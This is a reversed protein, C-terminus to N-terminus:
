GLFQSVPTTIAVLADNVNAVSNNTADILIQQPVPIGSEVAAETVYTIEVGVYNFVPNFGAVGFAIDEQTDTADNLVTITAATTDVAGTASTGFLVLTTAGTVLAFHIGNVDGAAAADPPSATSVAGTIKVSYMKGVELGHAGGATFVRPSANAVSSGAATLTYDPSAVSLNPSVGVLAIPAEDAATFVVGGSSSTVTGQIQNGDILAQLKVEISQYFASDSPAPTPTTVEVSESYNREPTYQLISVSYSTNAAVTGVATITAVRGFGRLTGLYSVKQVNQLPIPECGPIYLTNAEVVVDAGAAQVTSLVAIKGNINSM